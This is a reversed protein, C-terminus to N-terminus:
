VESTAVPLTFRSVTSILKPYNNVRSLSESNVPKRYQINAISQIAYNDPDSGYAANFESSNYAGYVEFERALNIPTYYVPTQSIYHEYEFNFPNIPDPVKSSSNGLIHGMTLPLLYVLNLTEPKSLAMCTELMDVIEFADRPRLGYAKMYLSILQPLEIDESRREFKVYPYSLRDMTISTSGVIKELLPILNPEKLAYRRRFFRRLYGKGDFGPGYAGSVSHSLQEGHLGFVFIIGKVDFLHKIEELLKIAYTPRCRDLEDIVIIIPPSTSGNQLSAIVANLSQKMGSIAAQGEQFQAIRTEMLRSSAGSGAFSDDALGQGAGALGENVADKVADDVQNLAEEAADVAGATLLIGLGRKALGIGAIKAVRGSKSMFEKWRSRVEPADLEDKLAEKLTAALATMPQDALDDAWADVFAVPHTLSIHEALRRLFFTKGEGYGADIAVTYARADERQTPREYISELYGILLEAEAQRAFM